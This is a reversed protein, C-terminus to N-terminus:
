SGSGCQLRGIGRVLEDACAAPCIAELKGGRQQCIEWSWGEKKAFLRIKELNKKRDFIVIRCDTYDEPLAKMVCSAIKARGPLVMTGPTQMQFLSRVQMRIGAKKVPGVADPHMVQLGMAAMQELQRGSIVEIPRAEPVIRPDAMLIGPTDTWNEYREAQLFAAALAGTVDSGGRTLTHINGKEDAGYFGPTVIHRGAVLKRLLQRSAEYQIHGDADMSLWRAADVFDYGLLRAMVKAMLWEGRSVLWDCPTNRNLGAYIEDLQGQLDMQVGCGSQISQWRVCFKQWPEWASLGRSCLAWIDYLLDTMKKDEPYRRGPASVVIVQRREDARICRCAQLISESDALCSGGFKAAIM